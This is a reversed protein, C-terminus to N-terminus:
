YLYMITIRTKGVETKPHSNRELQVMEQDDGVKVNIDLFKM